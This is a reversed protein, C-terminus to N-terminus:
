NNSGKLIGDMILHVIFPDVYLTNKYIPDEEPPWGTVNVGDLAPANSYREFLPIVPLLENFILAMEEALQKQTEMDGKGLKTIMANLDVKKGKYEQILPFNQGPMEKDDRAGGGNYNVLASLYSEQPYPNAAGWGLIAMQFNGKQMEPSYQSWGLGRVVTKIGFNTLQQAVNDAAPTWDAFDSCVSLEFELKKGKDDYWQGDRKQFGISKLIEEAKAPNHEYKNLKNLTDESLWKEALNDAMGCMYKVPVGSEALAIAGVEERNIVYALAQRFEVRNFPYIDNKFFVAPGSYLPVRIIRYGIQMFQQVSAPPFGHTAFDVKKDMVLPTVQPTEGNYLVIKDIKVKDAAWSDERKVLTLQAETISQTDMKFPGSAVYDTPRFADFEDLLATLKDNFEKYEETEKFKELEEGELEKLKKATDEYTTYLEEFKKAWDGYVTRPQPSIRLIYYEMLPNTTNLKFKITYDDIREFHDIYRWVIYNKARGIWLYTILDDVNFTSGDSWKVGQRLKVTFTSEEKDWTWDTALYKDWSGDSWHYFALPSTILLDYLGVSLAQTVFRNFHSTPPVQYPWAGYLVTEKKPEEKSPAGNSPKSTDKEGESPEESPTSEVPQPKESTCGLVLSLIMILSILIAGWKKFM